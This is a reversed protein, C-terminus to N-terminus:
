ATFSGNIIADALNSTAGKLGGIKDFNILNMTVSGLTIFAYGTGGSVSYVGSPLRLTDIDNINTSGYFTGSGFGKVLNNGSGLIYYGEGYFGIQNTATITDNGDGMNIQGVSTVWIKNASVRDDGQWTDIRGEVFIGAGTPDSAGQGTVTDPGQGTIIESGAGVAIGWTTGSGSVTDAGSDNYQENDTYIASYGRQINADAGMVLIGYYGGSGSVVDDGNGTFIFSSYTLELGAVGIQGTKITGIVQDNEFASASIDYTCISSNIMEIGSYSASGTGKVIDAGTGANISGYYMYIGHTGGTGDIKDDGYQTNLAYVAGSNYDGIITIGSIVTSKGIITDGGGTTATIGDTYINAVDVVWGDNSSARNAGTTFNFLSLNAMSNKVPIVEM